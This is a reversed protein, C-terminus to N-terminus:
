ALPRPPQLLASRFGASLGDDPLPVVMRDGQEDPFSVPALPEGAMLKTMCHDVTADNHHHHFPLADHGPHEREFEAREGYHDALFTWVDLDPHSAAHHRYHSFLAPLKVLDPSILFVQVWLVPLALLWRVARLYGPLRPRLTVPTVKRDRPLRAERAPRM